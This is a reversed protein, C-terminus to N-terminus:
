KTKEKKNKNVKKIEEAKEESKEAPEEPTCSFISIALPPVKIRISNERGDCEEKDSVHTRTNRFDFGGYKEADSNFIEKYKGAFPVGIKYNKRPINEFNIVVLLTEIQEFGESRQVSLIRRQM